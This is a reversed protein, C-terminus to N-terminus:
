QVLSSIQLYDVPGFLDWLRADGAAAWEAEAPEFLARVHEFQLWIIMTKLSPLCFYRHMSIALLSPLCFYRHMSICAPKTFLFILANLNCAPKTFLFISANLNCADKEFCEFEGLLMRKSVNLSGM